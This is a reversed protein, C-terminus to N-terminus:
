LPNKVGVKIGGVEITIERQANIRFKYGSFFTADWGKPPKGSIASEWEQALDPLKKAVAKYKKQWAAEAKKQERTHVRISTHRKTKPDRRRGGEQRLFNSAAITPATESSM